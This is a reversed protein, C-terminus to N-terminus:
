GDEFSEVRKLHGEHVLRQYTHLVLYIGALPSNENTKTRLQYELNGAVFAGVFRSEADQSISGLEFPFVEKQIQITVDESKEAFNLAISLAGLADETTPNAGYIQIARLAIDPTIQATWDEKAHSPQLFLLILLLWLLRM